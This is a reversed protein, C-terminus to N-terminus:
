PNTVSYNCASSGCDGAACGPAGPGGSELYSCLTYTQAPAGVPKYCYRYTPSRPDAPYPNIYGAPFSADCAAVAPYNGNDSKYIELASRIQEIDTKRKGDRSKRLSNVYSAYGISSILAIITIVVLIELLTFGNKKAIIVRTQKFFIDM